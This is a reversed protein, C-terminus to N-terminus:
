SQISQEGLTTFQSSVISTTIIERCQILENKSYPSVNINDIYQYGDFLTRLKPFTVGNTYVGSKGTKHYRSISKENEIYNVLDTKNNNKLIDVYNEPITEYSYWVKYEDEYDVNADTLINLTNDDLLNRNEDFAIHYMLKHLLIGHKKFASLSFLNVNWIQKWTAHFYRRAFNIELYEGSFYDYVQSGSFFDYNFGFKTEYNSTNVKDTTIEVIRTSWNTDDSYKDYINNFYLSCLQLYQKKFLVYKYLETNDADYVDEVSGSAYSQYFPIYKIAINLVPDKTFNGSLVAHEIIEKLTYKSYYLIGEITFDTFDNSFNQYFPDIYLIDLLLHEANNEIFNQITIDPFLYFIYKIDINTTGDLIEEFTIVKKIENYYYESVTLNNDSYDGYKLIQNIVKSGYDSLITTPSSVYKDDTINFENSIVSLPTQTAILLNDIDIDLTQFERTNFENERIILDIIDNFNDGSSNLISILDFQFYYMCKEIDFVSYYSYSLDTQSEYYNYLDNITYYGQDVLYRFPHINCLDVTNTNDENSQLIVYKNVTNNVDNISYLSDELEHLINSGFDVIQTPLRTKKKMSGNALTLTERRSYPIYVVTNSESGDIRYVLSKKRYGMNLNYFDYYYQGDVILENHYKHKNDITANFLIDGRPVFLTLIQSPTYNNCIDILSSDNYLHGPQYDFKKLEPITEIEFTRKVYELNLKEPYYIFPSPKSIYQSNYIYNQLMDFALTRRNLINMFEESPDLNKYINDIDSQNFPTYEFLPLKDLNDDTIRSTDQVTTHLKLKYLLTNENENDSINMFSTNNSTPLTHRELYTFIDFDSPMDEYLNDYKVLNMLQEDSVEDYDISPASNSIFYGGSFYTKRDYYTNQTNDEELKYLNIFRNYLNKLQEVHNSLITYEHPEVVYKIHDNVYAEYNDYDNKYQSENFDSRNMADPPRTTNLLKTRERHYSHTIEITKLLMINFSLTETVLGINRPFLVTFFRHLSYTNVNTNDNYNQDQILNIIDSHYSNLEDYMRAAFVPMPYFMYNFVSNIYGGENNFNNGLKLYRSSSMKTENHIENLNPVQNLTEMKYHVDDMFEPLDLEQRTCERLLKVHGDVHRCMDCIDYLFSETSDISDGQWDFEENTYQRITRILEKTAVGLQIGTLIVTVGLMIMGGIPGLLPAIAMGVMIGGAMSKFFNGISNTLAIGQPSRKSRKKAKKLDDRKFGDTIFSTVSMGVNGIFGGNIKDILEMEKSMKGENEEILSPDSHRMRGHESVLSQQLSNMGIVLMGMAMEGTSFASASDSMFRYENKIQEPLGQMLTKVRAAGKNRIDIAYSDSNALKIDLANRKEILSDINSKTFRIDNKRQRISGDGNFKRTPAKTVRTRTQVVEDVKIKLEVSSGLKPKIADSFMGSQRASKITTAQEHILTIEKVEVPSFKIKDVTAYVTAGKFIHGRVLKVEGAPIKLPAGVKKPPTAIPAGSPGIVPKTSIPLEPQKIAKKGYTTGGRRTRTKQPKTSLAKITNTRALVGTAKAKARTQSVSGSGSGSGSTISTPLDKRGTILPERTTDVVRTTKERGVETKGPKKTATEGQEVAYTKPLKKQELQAKKLDEQQTELINKEQNIRDTTTQIGKWIGKLRNEIGVELPDMISKNLASVAQKYRFSEKINFNDPNFMKISRSGQRATLTGIETNFVSNCQSTQIRTVTNIDLRKKNFSKKYDNIIKTIVEKVIVNDTNGTYYSSLTELSSDSLMQEMDNKYRFLVMLSPYEKYMLNNTNPKYTNTNSNYNDIDWGDEFINSGNMYKDISLSAYDAFTDVRNFTSLLQHVSHREFNTENTITIKRNTNNYTLCDNIPYQIINDSEIKDINYLFNSITGSTVMLETTLTHTLYNLLPFQPGEHNYIYQFYVQGDNVSSHIIHVNCLTLVRIDQFMPFTKLVNCIFAGSTLKGNNRSFVHSLQVLSSLRVLITEKLDTITDLLFEEFLMYGDKGFDSLSNYESESIRNSGLEVKDLADNYSVQIYPKTDESTIQEFFNENYAYKSSEVSHFFEAVNDRSLLQNGNNTTMTQGSGSDGDPYNHKIMENYRVLFFEPDIPNPDNLYAGIDNKRFYKTFPVHGTQPPSNASHTMLEKGVTKMVGKFEQLKMYYNHLSSYLEIKKRVDKAVEYKYFKQEMILKGLKIAKMMIIAFNNTNSATSAELTNYNFELHKDNEVYEESPTWTKYVIRGVSDDEISTQEQMPADTVVEDGNEQITHLKIDQLKVSLIKQIEEINEPNNRTTNLYNKITQLRQFGTKPTETDDNYLDDLGEVNDRLWLTLTIDAEATM